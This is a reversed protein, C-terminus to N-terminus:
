DGAPVRGSWRKKVIFALAAVAAMAAFAITIDPTVLDSISVDTGAERASVIVSDVGQGLYAYAFTGPLIGLFTAVVYTRVTVNFLAPAINIIFFPFIPALRLVFLFGFANDRFGDALKNVGSGAKKKLVDGFASRAALYVITAGITAAFATLTGAVFWGFLFGGFITLLSAAPISLAVAVIYTVFYILAALWYNEAVEAVLADRHEVLAELSLYKDLGLWYATALGAAVVAIPAFRRLRSASPPASPHRPRDDSHSEQDTSMPAGAAAANTELTM